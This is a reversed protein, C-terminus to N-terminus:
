KGQKQGNISWNQFTTFLVPQIGSKKDMYWVKQTEAYVDVVRGYNNRDLGVLIKTMHISASSCATAHLNSGGGMKAEEHIGKLIEWVSEPENPKPLPAKHHSRVDFYTKLLKFSKDAVQKNGNARIRRLVPLIVQLTLQDSYKKEMYISLLDLVRSKFQVVTQKAGERDKKNNTVQSRQQFIKTLHPDLAMMQEDDMDSDDSSEESAEGDANPKSTQLTLALLNNFNALEEDEEDDDDDGEEGDEDEDEEDDDSDSSSDNADGESGNIMEVDSDESEDDEGESGGDEDEDEDGGQNFLQRQGALSEDTDLVDTLSSLGDSTIDSVFITFVEEATKRFLTRPNGLFSLIIEVFVDQGQVDSAKKRKLMAKRSSDLDDLMMIADGDGDYVQLLTLSYLLIFGETASKNGSTAGKATIADLTGFAKEVTELVSDEAKFVLEWTKSSAAKSRVMGLVLLAVTTRTEARVRILRTLCSSLREQFVKRSSDSLSPLPMKSTKATRSPIFYANEVMLELIKHLWTDRGDLVTSLNDYRTYNRVVTLLMDSITQRRSDATTQDQTEPRLILSGLHRVIKKLAEDDASLLIQDLTKTKTLRDLDITGNKSTLAVFITPASSPKQQVRIQLAKLAALSAAHLYRDEKRSQNILTRMLNPSFLATIARKPIEAILSAFLKFGWSKREHSASSAFLNSDVVDMWFQPFESKASEKGDNKEDRQLIESLVVNWAFIPNPNVASSKINEEKANDPAVRFDEKLIKALRTREKKALPDKKHWVGEPLVSEYHTQVTLWIAVGEPTNVLSNAVLREIVEQACKQFEPKSDSSKLTEVLVLGCEERLWPVDRAMGYIQDLARNWCEMALEPETLISSQMIAKFGFLKGILHDRREQGPVNGEVKTKKEVMELISSVELNFGEIKIKDQGFLQRLLETLTICFGVRAAKRQSCLGRILRHLAKEVEHASPGNEPSFKVILQKAAELRVEDSEAALDEYLKILGRDAENVQRRRKVPNECADEGNNPERERKIPKAGM